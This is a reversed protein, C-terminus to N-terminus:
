VVVVAKSDLLLEASQHGSGVSVLPPVRNEKASIACLSVAHHNVSWNCPSSGYWTMVLSVTTSENAVFRLVVMMYRLTWPLVSGKKLIHDLLVEGCGKREVAFQIDPLRLDHVLFPQIM